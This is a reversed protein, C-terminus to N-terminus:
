NITLHLSPLGDIRGELQDGKKLPGVGAPTGTYILDGPMLHYLGSLHSIVEAINWTMNRIVTEQKRVGNVDLTMRANQIDGADDLPVLPACPASQDFGKAADWPRGKEKAASQLDRRTLDIGCAYGFVHDMAQEVPIAAGERNIAVVLEMEFHLNSTASPYAISTGSEVVADAPKSFFFPPERTPDGGMEIAHDAYNRGVCFIRRVPFRTDTGHIAITPPAPPSFLYNM